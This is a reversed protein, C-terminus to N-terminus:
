RNCAARAAPRSILAWAVIPWALNFISGMILQTTVQGRIVPYKDMVPALWTYVLFFMGVVAVIKLACYVIAVTPAARKKMVCLIGAVLHLLGVLLYTFQEILHYTKFKKGAEGLVELESKGLMKDTTAMAVLTLLLGLGAFCIMLIGIVTPISSPKPPPPQYM